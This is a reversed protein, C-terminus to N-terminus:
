RLVPDHLTIFVGCHQDLKDLTKRTVLEGPERMLSRFQARTEIVDKFQAM